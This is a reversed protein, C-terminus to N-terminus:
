SQKGYNMIVVASCFNLNIARSPVTIGTISTIGSIGSDTETEYGSLEGQYLRDTDSVLM